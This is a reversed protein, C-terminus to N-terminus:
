SAGKGDRGDRGRRVALAWDGVEAADPQPKSRTSRKAIWLSGLHTVASNKEYERETWVGRYALPTEEKQELAILRRELAAMHLYTEAMCENIRERVGPLIAEQADRIRRGRATKELEARPDMIGSQIAAAREHKAVAQEGVAASQYHQYRDSISPMAKRRDIGLVVNLPVDEAKAAKEKFVLKGKIDPLEDPPSVLETM